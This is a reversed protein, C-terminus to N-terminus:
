KLTDTQRYTLSIVIYDSSQTSGKSESFTYFYVGLQTLM